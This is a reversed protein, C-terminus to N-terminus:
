GLRSVPSWYALCSKGRARNESRPATGDKLNLLCLALLAVGQRPSCTALSVRMRVNMRRAVQM